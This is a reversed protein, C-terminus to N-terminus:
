MPISTIGIYQGREASTVVDAVVAQCLAVTSASGASQLCRLVMLEAYNQCLAVGINAAIYVVFCVVYAPRRGATDALGGIFM